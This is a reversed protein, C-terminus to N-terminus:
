LLFSSDRAMCHLALEVQVGAAAQTYRLAEAADYHAEATSVREPRRDMRAHERKVGDDGQQRRM